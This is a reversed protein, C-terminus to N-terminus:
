PWDRTGLNEDDRDVPDGNEADPKSHGEGLEEGRGAGETRM